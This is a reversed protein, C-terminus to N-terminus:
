HIWTRLQGAAAQLKAITDAQRAAPHPCCLLLDGSAAASYGDWIPRVAEAAIRGFTLVVKPKHTELCVKIHVPDPPCITRSDGAIVRSAEEWVIRNVLEDGFASKIRRGTLGGHFILWKICQRRFEEGHLEFIKRLRGPDKVWLNQLFALIM